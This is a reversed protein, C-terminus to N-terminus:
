EERIKNLGDLLMAQDMPGGIKIDQIKGDASIFYTTPLAQVNYQQAVQTDQDLLLPFTVNVIKTRFQEIINANEGQNIGLLILDRGQGHDIWLRELEPMESRCPPCWTAWFNIVIPTGRLDSLTVPRGDIAILTFNPALLGIQPGSAATNGTAEDPPLQSFVIWIVGIILLLISFIRWRRGGAAIPFPRPVRFTYMTHSITISASLINVRWDARSCLRTDVCPLYM